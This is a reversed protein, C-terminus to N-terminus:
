RHDDGNTASGSHGNVYTKRSSIKHPRAGDYKNERGYISGGFPDEGLYYRQLPSAPARRDMDSSASSQTHHARTHQRVAPPDSDVSGYQQYTSSLLRPSPSRSPRKGGKQRGKREQSASRIKGM